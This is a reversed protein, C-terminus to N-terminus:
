LKVIIKIIKYIYFYRNWISEVKERVIFVFISWGNHM